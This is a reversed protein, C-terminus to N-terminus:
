CAEDYAAAYGIWVVGLRGVRLAVDDALAAAAYVGAARVAAFGEADRRRALVRRRAEM